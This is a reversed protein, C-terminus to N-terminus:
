PIRVHGGRATRAVITSGRGNSRRRDYDRVVHSIEGDTNRRYVDVKGPAPWGYARPVFGDRYVRVEAVRPDQFAQLVGDIM